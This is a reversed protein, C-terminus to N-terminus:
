LGRIAVQTGSDLKDSPHLVIQDGVNLGALIQAELGNQEGVTVERKEVRDMVVAFV